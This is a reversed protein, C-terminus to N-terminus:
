IARLIARLVGTIVMYKNSGVQVVKHMEINSAEARRGVLRWWFSTEFFSVLQTNFVSECQM